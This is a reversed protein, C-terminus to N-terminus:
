LLDLSYALGLNIDKMRSMGEHDIRRTTFNLKIVIEDIPKCNLGFSWARVKSYEEKLQSMDDAVKMQPDYCEYHAFPIIDPWNKKNPYFCSKLNFGIEGMYSIVDKGLTGPEYDLDDYAKNIVSANFFDSLSSSNAMHGQLYSARATFYDNSYEADAFWLMVPTSYTKGTKETTFEKFDNYYTMNRAVDHCLYGGFGFRLGKFYNNDLRVALGPSSIFPESQKFGQSATQIWGTPSMSLPNLGTTISAHYSIGYEFEGLFSVGAETFPCPILSFEGEPDGTTFYDTYAYGANCHGIPLMFIGSKIIFSPNFEYSLSIEDVQIGQGSVFEVDANATWYPAFNYKMAIDFGPIKGVVSKEYSPGQPTDFRTGSYNKASLDMEGSLTLSFRDDEPEEYIPLVNNETQPMAVCAFASFM